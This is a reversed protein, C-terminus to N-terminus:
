SSTPRCYVECPLSKKLVGNSPWVCFGWDGEEPTKANQRNIGEPASLSARNAVVDCSL